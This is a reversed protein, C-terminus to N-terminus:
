GWVQVAAAEGKLAPLALTLVGGDMVAALTEESGDLHYLVARTPAPVDHQALDIALTFPERTASRDVIAAIMGKRDRHRFLKGDVRAPLAGLGIDDRFDGRYLEGKVRQRLAILRRLYQHFPDAPDVGQLLIDFRYGMLFVRNMTDERRPTTLEPYYYHLGSGAGNCTGSFIPHEPFAYTYIEPKPHTTLGAVMEVGLAHSNYQMQADSVTESTIALETPRAAELVRRLVDLCGRGVGHPAGPGHEDSFCIRSAGFMTVPMSDFYWTDV